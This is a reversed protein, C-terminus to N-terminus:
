HHETIHREVISILANLRQDTNIQARTLEGAREALNAVIGNTNEQAVALSAVLGLVQQLDGLFNKHQGSLQEISHLLGKQQDKLEQIDAAFQAQHDIIFEMKRSLDDM